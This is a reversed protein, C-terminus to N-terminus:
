EVTDKSADNRITQLFVIAAQNRPLPLKDAADKAKEWANKAITAKAVLDELKQKNEPTPDARKEAEAIFAAADAKDLAVRADVESKAKNEVDEAAKKAADAANDFTAKDAPLNKLFEQALSWKD